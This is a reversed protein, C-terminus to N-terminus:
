EASTLHHLTSAYIHTRLEITDSGPSSRSAKKRTKSLLVYAVVHLEGVQRDVEEAERRARAAHGVLVLPHRAREPRHDARAPVRRRVARRGLDPARLLGFAERHEEIGARRGVHAGEVSFPIEGWAHM